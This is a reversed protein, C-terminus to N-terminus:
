FVNGQSAKMSALNLRRLWELNPGFYAWTLGTALDQSGRRLRAFLLHVKGNNITMEVELSLIIELPWVGHDIKSIVFSLSSSTAKPTIAITKLRELPFHLEKTLYSIIMEGTADQLIIDAHRGGTKDIDRKVEDVLNRQKLDWYLPNSEYRQMSVKFHAYSEQVEKPVTFIDSTSLAYVVAVSLFTCFLFFSKWQFFPFITQYHIEKTAAEDHGSIM